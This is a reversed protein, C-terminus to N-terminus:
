EGVSELIKQLLQQTFHFDTLEIKDFIPKLAPIIGKLKAASLVGLTGTFDLGMEIVKRRAKEDDLILKCHGLEIALAIASAEGIDMSDMLQNQLVKNKPDIVKIWMQLELGYEDAIISTIIVEGYLKELINLEGIKELLILCSADSIITKPM